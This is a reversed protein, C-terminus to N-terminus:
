LYMFDPWCQRTIAPGKASKRPIKIVVLVSVRSTRCISISPWAVLMSISASIISVMSYGHRIKMNRLKGACFLLSTTSHSHRDNDFNYTYQGNEFSYQEQKLRVKHFLDDVSEKCLIEVFGLQGYAVQIRSPSHLLVAIMWHHLLNYLLLSILDM